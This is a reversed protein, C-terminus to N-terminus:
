AGGLLDALSSLGRKTKLKSQALEAFKPDFEVGVGSKAGLAEMARIASGSGATPDFGVTHEDVLMGMFHKLMPEPKENPHISDAKGSPCGYVNGVPKVIFRDGSAGFLCAEYINRPMRRADPAVGKNDTKHWILPTNTFRIGPAHKAFFELTETYFNMSIWFMVHASVGTLKNWNKCLEATLDWYLDADSAYGSEYSEQQAQGNLEVGYPFDVHVLNFRPGDYESMFTKANAHVINFNTEPTEPEPMVLKVVEPETKTGPIVTAVTPRPASIAPKAVSMLETLMADQARAQRRTLITWANSFEPASAVAKDGERIAEGLAIYKAINTPSMGVSEATEKVTLNPRRAVQIERIRLLATAQDQWCLDSRKTNEELEILELEEEGLETVHRFPILDQELQLVATLRREGAVLTAQTFEGESLVLNKVIVPNIVGRTRISDILDSVDINRRQRKDREIIILKPDIMLGGRVVM